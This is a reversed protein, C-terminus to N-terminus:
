KRIYKQQKVKKKLINSEANKKLALRWFRLAKDPQSCHYYIDGSHELVTGSAEPDALLEDDSAEPNVVRDIYVRAATYDQQMFLVWAYTDLYTKNNPEAKITRYSMQEAKDLQQNRLSLYYAYNNLCGINDPTYVLCSDYAVYAERERGQEHLLDGMLGYIDGVVTPNSEEDAQRVAINLAEIAEANRKQQALAVSLYYHFALEEPHYILAKQCLSEIKAYEEKGAYHQLLTVITEMSSPDVEVIREMIPILDDKSAQQPGNRYTKYSLYLLLFEVPPKEPALVQALLAEGHPLQTSDQLGDRILSAMCSVRLQIDTQEDLMISDRMQRFHLTDGTALLYQMRSTQLQMNRPEIHEVRDYVVRASDTQGVNLYQDGLMLLSTVDYPFERCLAKLQAFAQVTDGLDTYLAFKQAALRTSNGQMTQIRDLAKIADKTRGDSKYLQFLQSQVDTRKPQLRALRELIHTAQDMKHTALYAATLSELYSTNLSDIAVTNELMRLGLTDEGIAFKMLALEYTASPDDPCIRLCHELLDAMATYNEEARAQQSALYYYTLRRQRAAEDVDRQAATQATATRGGTLM